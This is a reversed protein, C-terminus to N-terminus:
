NCTWYTSHCWCHLDVHFEKIVKSLPASSPSPAGSTGESPSTQLQQYASLPADVPSPSLKSVAPATSSSHENSDCPLPEEQVNSGSYFENMKLEEGPESLSRLIGHRRVSSGADSAHRKPVKQRLMKIHDEPSLGLEEDTKLQARIRAEERAREREVMRKAEEKRTRAPAVPTKLMEVSTDFLAKRIDPLSFAEPNTLPTKPLCSSNRESASGEAHEGSRFSSHVSLPRQRLQLYRSQKKFSTMPTYFQETQEGAPTSDDAFTVELDQHISLQQEDDTKTEVFPSPLVIDEHTRIETVTKVDEPTETVEKPSGANLGESNVGSDPQCIHSQTFCNLQGRSIRKGKKEQPSKKQALLKDMVM